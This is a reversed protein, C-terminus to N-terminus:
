APSSRKQRLVELFQNAQSELRAERLDLLCEIPDAWYLGGERLQFLPDAHRVAHVAVSAPRHPDDERVLAPDLQKIFDLGPSGDGCHVSLDLRPAGVLDLDPLYHRAGLVGGIAVGAPRLKELRRLRAEPSRPQGSRDAYRVTSRATEATAALREFEDRPFYRLAVRRDSSRDVLSGLEKLVRAVTPYSCGATRGLWEATVPEGSITWQHLLVKLIVFSYDPRSIRPGGDARANGVAEAIAAQLSDPPDEPFGLYRGDHELCITLRRLVDTRLVSEARLWEGHVREPTIASEALVLYGVSHPERALTYALGMISTRLTRLADARLKIVILANGVQSPFGDIEPYRLSPPRPNM